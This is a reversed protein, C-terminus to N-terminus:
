FNAGKTGKIVFVKTATIRHVGYSGSLRKIWHPLFVFATFLRFVIGMKKFILHEILVNDKVVKGICM